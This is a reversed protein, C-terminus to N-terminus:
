CVHFCIGLQSRRQIDDWVLSVDISSNVWSLLIFLHYRRPELGAHKDVYSQPFQRIGSFEQKMIKLVLFDNTNEAPITFLLKLSIFCM